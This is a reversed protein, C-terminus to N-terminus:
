RPAGYLVQAEAVVKDRFYRSLFAPTNLDVKRGIIRSLEEEIEFFKFGPTHGPEFEVLVDLDSDPLQDGHLASGFIALRRIHNRRCFESIQQEPLIMNGNRGWEKETKEDVGIIRSSHPESL